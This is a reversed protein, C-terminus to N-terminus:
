AVREQKLELLFDDEIARQILDKLGLGVGVFTQFEKVLEKHEAELRSRNANTVGDPYIGRNAPNVFPTGPALNDYDVASLLMGAHGNNGGGLRTPISSAVAILEEELCDIDQNTPQGHVETIVCEAVTKQIEVQIIAM